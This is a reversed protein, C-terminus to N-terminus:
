SCKMIMPIGRSQAELVKSKFQFAFPIKFEQGYKTTVVATMMFRGWSMIQIEFNTSADESVMENNSFSPDLIYKVKSVQGLDPGTLYIRNQISRHGSEDCYYIRPDSPSYVDNAVQVDLFAQQKGSIEFSSSTRASGSNIVDAHSEDRAQVTIDSSGIDEEGAEWAWSEIDSWDRVVEEEGHTRPGKMLFRYLIKDGEPDKAEATWTIIAGTKQPGTQDSTLNEITPPANSEAIGVVIVVHNLLLIALIALIFCYTKITL